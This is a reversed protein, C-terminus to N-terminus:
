LVFDFTAEKGDAADRVAMVLAPHFIGDRANAPEDPFYLQTTLVPQNPAQVKVHIHRTRGTYLGPVITELRYRGQADAFQHGRLRFGANDYAGSDDAHWFDLLAGAVPQCATTLVTGSVVLRTGPMGPELLSTREPTNPTYFPGETQAITVDDEDGCAPTPALAAPAETPASTAAPAETPATTPPATSAPATAPPATSAPAETPT